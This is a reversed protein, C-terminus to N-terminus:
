RFIVVYKIQLVNAIFVSVGWRGLRHRLFMPQTTVATDATWFRSSCKVMRRHKSYYDSFDLLIHHKETVERFCTTAGTQPRFYLHQRPMIRVGRTPPAIPMRLSGRHNVTPQRSLRPFGTGTKFFIYKIHKQLYILDFLQFASLFVFRLFTQTTKPQEEQECARKYKSTELQADTM